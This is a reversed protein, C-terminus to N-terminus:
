KLNMLCFCNECGRLRINEFLENPDIVQERLMANSADADSVDTDDGIVDNGVMDPFINYSKLFTDHQVSSSFSDSSLFLSRMLWNNLAILAAPPQLLPKLASKLAGLSSAVLSPWAIM